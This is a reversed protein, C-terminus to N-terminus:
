AANLSRLRADIACQAILTAGPIISMSPTHSLMTSESPLKPDSLNTPNMQPTCSLPSSPFYSYVAAPFVCTKNQSRALHCSRPREAGLPAERLLGRRRQNARARGVCRDGKDAALCQNVM